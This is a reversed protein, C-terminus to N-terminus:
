IEIYNENCEESPLVFDCDEIKSSELDNIYDLELKENFTNKNELKKIGNIYSHTFMTGYWHDDNNTINTSMLIKGISFISIATNNYIKLNLFITDITYYPISTSFILKWIKGYMDLKKIDYYKFEYGNLYLKFTNPDLPSESSFIYLSDSEINFNCKIKCIDTHTDKNFINEGDYDISNITTLNKIHLHTNKFICGIIIDVKIIGFSKIPKIEFLPNLINIDTKLTKIDLYPEINIKNAIQIKYDANYCKIYNKYTNSVIWNDVNYRYEGILDILENEKIINSNDDKASVIIEKIFYNFEPIFNTNNKEIYEDDIYSICKPMNTHFISKSIYGKNNINEPKYDLTIKYYNM